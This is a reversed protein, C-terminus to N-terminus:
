RLIEEYERMTKVQLNLGNVNRIKAITQAPFTVPSIEYLDIENLTRQNKKPDFTNAQSSSNFGISLGDLVKNKMLIHAKRATDLELILQGRVFLGKEDETLSQWQGIPEDINHQYLMKSGQPGKDKLTQTFAGPKVVDSGFFPHRIPKNFVSAYGEFVGTEGIDKVELPFDIQGYEM